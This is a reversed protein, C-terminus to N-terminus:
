IVSGGSINDLQIETLRDNICDYKTQRVATTVDIGYLPDAVTVTDYLFAANLGRYQAYEDTSGLEILKVTLGYKPVDIRTPNDSSFQHEAQEQMRAKAIAATVGDQGVTCDQCELAMCRKVPYQDVYPSFVYSWDHIWGPLIQDGGGEPEVPDLYLKSGDSKFGYPLVATVVESIDVSYRVGVLNRGREIRLGTDRGARNLFYLDFNDRIIEANWRAAFGEDPDLLAQIVNQCDYNMSLRTASINTHPQFLLGTSFDIAPFIGVQRPTDASPFYTLAETGTMVADAMGHTVYQALDYSIHEAYATVKEGETDIDVSCIRFLQPKAVADGVIDDLTGEDLPVDEIKVDLAIEDVWGTLWTYTGAKKDKVKEYQVRIRGDASQLAYVERGAILSGTKRNGTSKAYVNRQAATLTTKVTWKEATAAYGSGSLVPPTRTRVSCQIIRGPEVAQWKGYEDFPVELDISSMGGAIETHECRTAPLAGCLGTTTFDTATSEYIYIEGM